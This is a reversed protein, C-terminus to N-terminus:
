KLILIESEKLGSTIETFSLNHKGVTILRKIIKDNEKVYCFTEKKTKTIAFTPALLVDKLQDIHIVIRASAGPRVKPNKEDLEVTVTFEKVDDGTRWNSANAIGAVKTVNGTFSSNNASDVTIVCKQGVKVQEISSEHISVRVIITTLDPLTILTQDVGVSENVKIPQSRWRNPDGYIVIGSGPSRLICNNLYTNNEALKKKQKELLRKSQNMETKAQENKAKVQLKTRTLSNKANKEKNKHDSLQQPKTYKLYLKLKLQDSESKIKSSKLDLEETEYEIQTIFGDELLKALQKFREAKRKYDLQSQDMAITLERQKLPQDGNIYKELTLTAKSLELEAKEIKDKGESVTIEYNSKSSNFQTTSNLISDELEEIQEKFKENDFRALVDDKKVITGEDILHTVKIFVPLGSKIKTSDKAHLTGYENIEIKLDGRTVKLDSNSKPGEQSQNNFTYILFGIIAIFLIIIIKKM